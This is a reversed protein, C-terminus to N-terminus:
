AVNRVSARLAADIRRRSATAAQSWPTAYRRAWCTRMAADRRDIGTKLANLDVRITGKVDQPRAPDLIVQGTVAEAGGTTGIVTELPAETKFTARSTYNISFTWPEAGVAGWCALLSVVVLATAVLRPTLPKQGAALRRM